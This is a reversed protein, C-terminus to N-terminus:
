KLGQRFYFRSYSTESDPRPDKWTDRTPSVESFRVQNEQEKEFPIGILQNDVGGLFYKQPNNPFRAFSFGGQIQTALVVKDFM